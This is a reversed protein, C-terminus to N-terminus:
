VGTSFGSHHKAAREYERFEPLLKSSVTVNVHPMEKEIAEAIAQEHAPNAYSHLLSIAVSEVGLEVVRAVVDNVDKQTMVDLVRGQADMRESIGSCCDRTLPLAPKVVHLDYLEERNQRGIFLTDEFGATTIFATKAGKGELMTNTAVTSGHVFLSCDRLIDTGDCDLTAALNEVAALVGRSPDEPVSPVKAVWAAGDADALVLDTFTGGVDVGIRWPSRPGTSVTESM